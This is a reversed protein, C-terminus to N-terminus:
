IAVEKRLRRHGHFLAAYAATVQGNHRDLGRAIRRNLILACDPNADTWASAPCVCLVLSNQDFLALIPVLWEVKPRDRPGSEIIEVQFQEFAGTQRGTNRRFNQRFIFPIVPLPQRREAQHTRSRVAGWCNGTQEGHAAVRKSEHSASIDLEEPDVTKFERIGYLM